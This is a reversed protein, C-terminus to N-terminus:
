LLGAAQKCLNCLKQTAEPQALQRVRHSMAQLTSPNEFLEQLATKFTEISFNAQPILLAAQHQSLFLANKTQHDDVAHPFPVLIAPLGTTTLEAITLAGARCIVLDAWQYAQAMDQIFSEIKYVRHSAISTYAQLVQAQDPVGTQHWIQFDVPMGLAQNLSSFTLPCIKNLAQAGRSGGLILINMTKQAARFPLTKPQIESRVPNGILHFHERSPFAQPFAYATYRALKSLIRNTLGPIANQEHIVLPYRKLWAMLGGPAAVFGGMGLVVHPQISKMIAHAQWLSRIARWPFQIWSKWNKGRLGQIPLCHFEIPFPAQPLLTTELGQQSGLWSIAWGEKYLTHAVSLAPIVHGGTGGALILIKKNLPPHKSFQSM